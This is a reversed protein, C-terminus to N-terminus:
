ESNRNRQWVRGLPCAFPGHEGESGAVGKLCVCASPLPAIWKIGAAAAPVQNLDLMFTSLAVSVSEQTQIRTFIHSMLGIKAGEAPVFSGIQAMFVILGVKM